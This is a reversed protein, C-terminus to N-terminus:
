VVFSLGCWLCGCVRGCACVCVCVCVMDCVGLWMVNGRLLVCQVVGCDLGTVVGCVALYM